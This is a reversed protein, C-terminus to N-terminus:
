RDDYMLLYCQYNLNLFYIFRQGENVFQLHDSATSLQLFTNKTSKKKRRNGLNFFFNIVKDTYKESM